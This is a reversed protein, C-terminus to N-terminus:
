IVQLARKHLAAQVAGFTSDALANPSRSRSRLNRQPSRSGRMGGVEYRSPSQPRPAPQNGGGGPGGRAYGGSAAVFTLSDSSGLGMPLSSGDNLSSADQIVVQRLLHSINSFHRSYTDFIKNKTFM